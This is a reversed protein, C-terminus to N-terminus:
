PLSMQFHKACGALTLSLLLLLYIYLGWLAKLHLSRRLVIGAILPIWFISHLVWLVPTDGSRLAHLDRNFGPIFFSVIGYPAMWIVAHVVIGAWNLWLLSILYACPVPLVWTWISRVTM